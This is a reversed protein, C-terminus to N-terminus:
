ITTFKITIYRENNCCKEFYTNFNEPLIQGLLLICFIWEQKKTPTKKGKEGGGGFVLKILKKYISETLVRRGESM